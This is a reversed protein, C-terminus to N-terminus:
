PVCRFKENTKVEWTRVLRGDVYLEIRGKGKVRTGEALVRRVGVFRQLYTEFPKLRVVNLRRSREGDGLRAILILYSDDKQQVRKVAEELELLLDECNVRAQASSKTDRTKGKVVAQSPELCPLIACLFVAILLIRKYDSIPESTEKMNM